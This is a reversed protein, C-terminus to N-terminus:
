AAQSSRAQGIRAANAALRMRDDRQVAIALRYLGGFFGAAFLAAVVAIVAANAAGAGLALLLTGVFAM